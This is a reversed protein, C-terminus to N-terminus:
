FQLRAPTATRAVVLGVLFCRRQVAVSEEMGEERAQAFVRSLYEPLM